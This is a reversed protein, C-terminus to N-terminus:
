FHRKQGFFPTIYHSRSHYGPEFTARATSISGQFNWTNGRVPFFNGECFGFSIQALVPWFQRFDAIRTICFKTSSPQNKWWKMPILIEHSRGFFDDLNSWGNGLLRNFVMERNYIGIRLNRESWAYFIFNNEWKNPCKWKRIFCHLRFQSTKKQFSGNELSSFFLGFQNWLKKKM